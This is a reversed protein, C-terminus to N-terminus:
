DMLLSMSKQMGETAKGSDKSTAKNGTEAIMKATALDLDGGYNHVTSLMSSALGKDKTMEKSLTYFSDMWTMMKENPVKRLEPNHKKAHDITKQFGKKDRWKDYKGHLKDTAKLALGGAGIMGITKLTKYKGEDATKALVSKPSTTKVPAVVGLVSKPAQQTIGAMGNNKSIGPVKFGTLGATKSITEAMKFGKGQKSIAKTEPTGKALAVGGVSMATNKFLNSGFSHEKSGFIAGTAKTFAKGIFAEKTLNKM